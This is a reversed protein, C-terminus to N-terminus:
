SLEEKRPYAQNPSGLNRVEEIQLTDRNIKLSRRLDIKEPNEGLWILDPLWRHSPRMSGHDNYGRKRQPKTVKQKRRDRLIVKKLSNEIQGLYNGFLERESYKEIELFYFLKEEDESLQIITNCILWKGEYQHNFCLKEIELILSFKLLPDLQNVILALSIAERSSIKPSLLIDFHDYYKKPLHLYLSM